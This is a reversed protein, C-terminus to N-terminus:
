HNRYGVGGVSMLNGGDFKYIELEADDYHRIDIVLYDGGKFRVIDVVGISYPADTKTSYFDPPSVLYKSNKFEILLGGGVTLPIKDLNLTVKSLEDMVNQLKLDSRRIAFNWIKVGGFAKFVSSQEVFLEREFERVWKEQSKQAIEGSINEDNCSAREIASVDDNRDTKVQYLLGDFSMYSEFEDPGVHDAICYKKTLGSGLYKLRNKVEGNGDMVKKTSEIYNNKVYAIIGYPEKDAIGQAFGSMSWFTNCGCVIFIFWYRANLLSVNKCEIHM